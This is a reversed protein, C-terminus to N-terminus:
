TKVVVVAKLHISKRYYRVGAGKWLFGAEEGTHTVWEWGDADTGAGFTGFGKVFAAKEDASDVFLTLKLCNICGDLHISIAVVTDRNRIVYVFVDGGLNDFDDLTVHTNHVFHNPPFILILM